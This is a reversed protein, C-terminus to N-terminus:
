AGAVREYVSRAIQASRAWTFTTARALAAERKAARWDDPADLVCRLAETLTASQDPDILLGVEGVVEPLAARDSVVPVVGCAMAELAPLGFGEYFAPLLLAIAGNMVAPMATHDIDRRWIVGPAREVRAITAESLWGPHGALLLPPADHRAARLAAYADLLGPINKRPEITGVYLFYRAPLGLDRLAAAVREVPLPRFRPDVGHLQVTIKGAPVGLLRVLDCQTAESVALIHDAEAVARAIGDNYYRRSEDTMHDPWILFALDHVTIIHRRAGRLPPIFDPSHLVDLRHPTLEVSLAWRELRHHPPTWVPRHAFADALTERSKRSRFVTLRPRSDQAALAALLYRIYTSTGGVRYHTLRADLGIHPGTSPTSTHTM